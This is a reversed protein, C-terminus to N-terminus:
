NPRMGSFEAVNKWKRMESDVFAAFEDPLKVPPVLDAGIVGGAGPRNEVVVPVGLNEALRQSISRAAFDAIGGPAFAVIMRITKSPYPQAWVASAVLLGVLFNLVRAASRAGM